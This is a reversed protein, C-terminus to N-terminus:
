KEEGQLSYNSADLALKNACELIVEKRYPLLNHSNGEVLEKIVRNNLIFLQTHEGYEESICKQVPKFFHIKAYKVKKEFAKIREYEEKGPRKQARKRRSLGLEDIEQISKQITANLTDVFEPNKTSKHNSSIKTWQRALQPERAIRTLTQREAIHFPPRNISQAHRDRLLMLSSFIHWEAETLDAKYREKLIENQTAESHNGSEFHQNEQDIWHNVGGHEAAKIFERYLDHLHIVDQIAYDIQDSSLPRQFWNSQQSSKSISIELVQELLSALSGPPFNLLASAIQLDYLGKPYCGLSHLLRLDEGFSFVIKTIEPNELVRFIPRLDIEKVTPDILYSDTGDCIQILCLNFGYRFRNKDFELDVALLQQAELKQAAQNLVSQNEVYLHSLTPPISM